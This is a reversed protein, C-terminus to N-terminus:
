DRDIEDFTVVQAKGAAKASLLATDAAKVLEEATSEPAMDLTALGISIHIDVVKGDAAHTASEFAKLIRQCVVLADVKREGGLLLVFEDGGYRALTDSDRVQKALLAATSKLIADGAPHGHEDNVRKFGDLDMFALALPFSHNNAREVWHKLEADLKERNYLGTLVDRSKEEVLTEAHTKLDCMERLLKMSLDTLMARSRDVISATKEADLVHMGFQSEIEPVQAALRDLVGLIDAQELSLSSSIDLALEAIGSDDPTTLMVDAIKGSLAVCALFAATEPDTDEGSQAEQTEIVHSRRVAHCILNPLDWRELLWGGIWAHDVGLSDSERQIIALHDDELGVLVEYTHPKAMGLVMLGIDQLLGALFLEEGRDSGCALGLSRAASGALLSRRWFFDLSFITSESDSSKLGGVLSFSLALMTTASQGLTLLAQAMNTVERRRAYTASNSTKLIKAVLAPDQAILDMLIKFDAEPDKLLEIIRSAIHPPSPLDPFQELSQLLEASPVQECHINSGDRAAETLDDQRAIGHM